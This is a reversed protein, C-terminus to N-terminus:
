IIGGMSTKSGKSFDVIKINDDEISNNLFEIQKDAECLSAKLGKAMLRVQANAHLIVQEKHADMLDKNELIADITNGAQQIIVDYESILDTNKNLKSLRKLKDIRDKKILIHEQLHKIEVAIHKAIM